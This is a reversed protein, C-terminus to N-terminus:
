PQAEPPAALAAREARDRAVDSLKGLMDKAAEHKMNNLRDGHKLVLQRYNEGVISVFRKQEADTMERSRRGKGVRRNGPDAPTLWLGNSGMQGLLQYERAEPQAQYERSWPSRDVEVQKGFIDLLPGGVYRRYYPVEKAFNEWGEYKRLNGDGIGGLTGFAGLDVEKLVRPIFGGAFNGFVRSLKKTAADVPDRSHINGGFIEMLQSLATTDAFSTGAAWAATAAVESDTIKEWDEPAYKIRDSMAGVAAFLSSVPWNAYNFTNGMIHFSNQKLGAAMLQKIKAASLGAWSGEIGWGRKEDDPEDAISKLLSIGVMALVASIVQNKIIAQNKMQGAYDKEYLRALGIMPIFGLTQNLKNGAFRAFRLGGLNLMQHTAFHYLVAIFRQIKMNVLGVKEAKLMNTHKVYKASASEARNATGRVLKYFGGGMGEPNLTMAGQAAVFNADELVNAYKTLKAEIWDISQRTVLAQEQWTQPKKDAWWKALVEKRANSLDTESAVRAKEYTKSNLFMAVPLMGHRTITSNFLDGATLMKEFFHMFRGLMRTAPNKSQTMRWGISQPNNRGTDFFQMFAPDSDALLNKDGTRVYQWALQVARPYSEFYNTLSQMAAETGEGRRGQLHANIVTAAAHTFVEFGGSLFAMGITFITRPGSLVSTVWWASLIEATSLGTKRAIIKVIEDTKARRDHVSINPEQLEKALTELKKNEADTLKEFGFKEAIDQAIIDNNLEGRNIAQIFKPIAGKVAQKGKETAFRRKLVAAVKAATLEERKAEWRKSFMDALEQQEAPDLNSLVPDQKMYEMMQKAKAEQSQPSGSFLKTWSINEPLMPSKDGSRKHAQDMLRNFTKAEAPSFVGAKQAARRRKDSKAKAAQLDEVLQNFAAIIYSQNSDWRAPDVNGVKEVAQNIKDRAAKLAGAPDALIQANTDFTTDALADRLVSFAQGRAWMHTPVESAISGLQEKVLNEIDAAEEETLGELGETARKALEVRIQERAKEWAERILQENNRVRGFADIAKEGLSEAGTTNKPLNLNDALIRTIQRIVSNLNKSPAKKPTIAARTKNVLSDVISQEFQNRLTDQSATLAEVATTIDTPVGLQESLRNVLTAIRGAQQSTKAKPGKGMMKKAASAIDKQRKAFIVDLQEDSLNNLEDFRAQTITGKISPKAESANAAAKAKRAAKIQLIVGLETIWDKLNQWLTKSEGDLSEEGARFAAEEADIAEEKQITRDSEDLLKKIEDAKIDANNAAIQRANELYAEKAGDLMFMDRYRPHRHLFAAVGLGGGMGSREEQFIKTANPAGRQMAETLLVNLLVPDREYGLQKQVGYNTLANPLQDLPVGAALLADVIQVATKVTNEYDRETKIYDPQDVIKAQDSVSDKGSALQDVWVAQQLKGAVEPELASTFDNSGQRYSAMVPEDDLVMVFSAPVGNQSRVGYKEGDAKMVDVSEAPEVYAGNDDYLAQVQQGFEAETLEPHVQKANAFLDDLSLMTSPKGVSAAQYVQQMNVPVAPPGDRMLRVAKATNALTQDLPTTYQPRLSAQPERGNFMVIADEKAINESSYPETTKRQEPTFNQRAQVDRSEIEGSTRRYKDMAMRNRAPKTIAYRSDNLDRIKFSITNLRMSEKQAKGVGKMSDPLNRFFEGLQREEERLEAIQADINDVTAQDEASLKFDDSYLFQSLDGGESFNEQKQIWHQIEHLLSSMQEDKSHTSNIAIKNSIPDFYGGHNPQMAELVLRINKAAPYAAFLEPHGLHDGITTIIGGSVADRLANAANAEDLQARNFEPTFGEKKAKISEFKARTSELKERAERVKPNERVQVGEDPIEWRMKGDYKGPFWGTVARIEESTKGAAAMAKATDLSDRMFQTTEAKEGAYSAKVVEVKIPMGSRTEVNNEALELATRLLKAVDQVDKLTVERSKGSLKRWIAALIDWLQKLPGSKPPSKLREIMKAMIEELLFERSDVNTRWDAGSGYEEAKADMEGEYINQAGWQFLARRTPKDLAYFGRHVLAEHTIVRQVAAQGPTTDEQEAASAVDGEYIGVQDTFVFARGASFLGELRDGKSSELARKVQPFSKGLKEDALFDARTGVWAKQVGPVQGQLDTAGNIADVASVGTSLETGLTGRISKIAEARAQQAPSGRALSFRIDDSPSLPGFALRGQETEPLIYVVGGFPYKTAAWDMVKNDLNMCGWSIRNDLPTETAIRQGRKESPNHLALRHIAVQSAEGTESDKMDTGLVSLVPGYTNDVEASMEFRGSPTVRGSDDKGLVDGVNKGVLVPAKKLLSGNEDFFYMTAGVKDTVIFPYGKTDGTDLVWQATKLADPSITKGRANVRPKANWAITGAGMPKSAAPMNIQMNPLGGFQPRAPKGTLISSIPIPAPKFQNSVTADSTHVMSLGIASAFLVKATNAIKQFLEILKKSAEKAGAMWDAMRKKFLERSSDWSAKGLASAATKKDEDTLSSDVMEDTVPNLNTDNNIDAKELPVEPSTQTEGIAQLERRPVQVVESSELTVESVAEGAGNRGANTKTLVGERMTGDEAQWTVFEGQAVPAKSDTIPKEEGRQAKEEGIAERERQRAQSAVTEPATSEQLNTANDAAPKIKGKRRQSDLFSKEEFGLIQGPRKLYAKAEEVSMGGSSVEVEKDSGVSKPPQPKTASEKTSSTESVKQYEDSAIQIAVQNATEIDPQGLATAERAGNTTKQIYFTGDPSAQIAYRVGDIVGVGSFSLDDALRKIKKAEEQTLPQAQQKNGEKMGAGIDGSEVPTLNNTVSETDVGRAGHAMPETNSLPKNDPVNEDTVDPISGEPPTRSEGAFADSGGQELPTAADNTTVAQPSQQSQRLGIEQSLMKAEDAWVPAMPNGLEQSRTDANQWRAQLEDDSFHALRSNNTAKVEQEAPAENTVERAAGPEQVVPETTGTEAVKDAEPTPAAANEVIAEAMLPSDAEVAQQAAQASLADSEATVEAVTRGLGASNVPTRQQEAPTTETAAKDSKSFVEGAGGLIGVQLALEPAKALFEDVVQSVPKDPNTLSAEIIQSAQEDPLEEIIEKLPGTLLVSKLKSRAANAGGTRLIAEVGSKGGMATMGATIAGSLLAAGRSSSLAEEPTKGQEIMANYTTPFQAGATQAGAALAAATLSGGTLVGAGIAPAMGVGMRSIGGVTTAGTAENDGELKQVDSITQNGEEVQGAQKALTDSGTTMAALGIGQSAVDAGGQVAGTAIASLLKQYAPRDKMVRLYDLVKAEPPKARVEAPQTSEWKPFTMMGPLPAEDGAITFARLADKAFKDRRNNFEALALLKSEAPADTSQVAKRYAEKDLTLTPDTYIDGGLVAVPIEGRIAARAEKAQREVDPAFRGRITDVTQKQTGVSGDLMKAGEGVYTDMAMAARRNNEVDNLRFQETELEDYDKLAKQQSETRTKLGQDFEKVAQEPTVQEGLLQRRKAQGSALFGRMGASDMQEPDLDNHFGEVTAQHWNDFLNAKDTPALNSFDPDAEVEEWPSM